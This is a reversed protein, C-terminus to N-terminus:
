REHENRIRPLSYCVDTQEIVFGNTEYLRLARSNDGEVYLIVRNAGAESLHRLGAGLLARGLGSGAARPAVALVYVEGTRADHRKTWHFGLLDGEPGWALLLGAPDFWDEGMRRALDAPGMAGQERHSAFALANLELLHAEDGARFGRIEVGAAGLTAGNDFAEGPAFERGMVLLERTSGLGLKAALGRAPALNGFAWWAAAPFRESLANALSGGIGARRRDPKVLLQATGTQSLQAYGLLEGAEWALWHEATNDALAFAAEENLARVGDFAAALGVLDRVAATEALELASSSRFAVPM